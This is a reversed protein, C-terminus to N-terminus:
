SWYGRAHLALTMRRSLESYIHAFREEDPTASTGFNAARWRRDRGRERWYALAAHILEHAVISGGLYERNLLIFGIRPSMAVLRGRRDVTWETRPACLAVADSGFAQRTRRDLEQSMLSSRDWHRRMESVTDFIRVEFYMHGGRDDHGVRFRDFSV